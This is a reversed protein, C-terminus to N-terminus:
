KPVAMKFGIETSKVLFSTSYRLIRQFYPKSLVTTDECPFSNKYQFIALAGPLFTHNRPAFMYIHRISALACARQGSFQSDLPSIWISRKHTQYQQVFLKTKLPM